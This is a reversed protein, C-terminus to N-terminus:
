EADDWLSSGVRVITAGELIAEEFDGSMGMSLENLEMNSPAEKRLSDRLERLAAFDRRAREVGGELAAMAMLGRIRVHPLAAIAPLHSRLENPVFGQKAPEGSINVELLTDIPRDIRAAETEIEQLLRLSDGSHVLSVHPLTRRVKNRQWHGILHWRIPLSALQEAKEWLAQPRSEGLDLCGAEALAATEATAVYKTVGVLQIEQPSRGARKAAAAIRDRVHQLRDLLLPSHAMNRKAYDLRVPFTSHPQCM